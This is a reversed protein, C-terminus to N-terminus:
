TGSPLAVASGPAASGNRSAPATTRNPLLDDLIARTLASTVDLGLQGLVEAEVPVPQGDDDQLDWSAIIEALSRAQSMLHHGKERDELERAEQVANIASPKYTLTLTDDGFSVKITRRDATLASLRVPV